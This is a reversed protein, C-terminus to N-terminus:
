IDRNSVSVVLILRKQEGGRKPVSTLECVGWLSDKLSNKLEIAQNSSWMRQNTLKM